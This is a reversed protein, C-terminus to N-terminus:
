SPVPAAPCHRHGEELLASMVSIAKPSPQRNDAKRLRLGKTRKEVVQPWRAPATRGKGVRTGGHSALRPWAQCDRGERCADCSFSARSISLVAVGEDVAGTAM